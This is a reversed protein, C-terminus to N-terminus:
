EYWGPSPARFAFAGSDSTRLDAIRRGASDFVTVTVDGIPTRALSDIVLARLNQAAAISPLCLCWATAILTRGVGRISMRRNYPEARRPDIPRRDVKARM